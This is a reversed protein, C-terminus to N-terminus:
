VLLAVLVMLVALLGFAPMATPLAFGTCLNSPGVGETFQCQNSLAVNCARFFNVCTSQCVPQSAVAGESSPICKPFLLACLLRRQANLCSIDDSFRPMTISNNLARGDALTGDTSDGNFDKPSICSTYNVQGADEKNCYNLTTNVILNCTQM